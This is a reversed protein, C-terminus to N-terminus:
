GRRWFLLVWFESSDFSSSSYAEQTRNAQPQNKNSAGIPHAFSSANRAKTCYGGCMLSRGCQSWVHALRFENAPGHFTRFQWQPPVICQM